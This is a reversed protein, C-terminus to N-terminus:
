RGSGYLTRWEVLYLSQRLSGLRRLLVMTHGTRRLAREFLQHDLGPAGNECSAATKMHFAQMDLTM